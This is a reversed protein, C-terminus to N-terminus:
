APSLEWTTKWLRAGHSWEHHIAEIFFDGAIGLGANGTATVTVRDSVRRNRAQTRLASSKSAWFSLAIIPRDESFGDLVEACWDSAEAERYALNPIPENTRIVNHDAQSAIDDMTVFLGDGGSAKPQDITPKKLPGNYGRVAVVVTELILTDAFVNEWARPDEVDTVDFKYVSEVGVQYAPTGVVTLGELSDYNYGIPPPTDLPGWTVGSSSGIFGQFVIFLAPARNWGPSIPYADTGLTIRGLKIGDDTGYWDRIQYIHCISNGQSTGKYFTVTDGGETGDCILSFVRIGNGERQALQRHVTWPPPAGWEVDTADASGVAFVLVLDGPETSPMTINVTLASPDSDSQNSVDVVTPATAAVGCIARNVLQAAQNLPEISSYGYQGTGPTDTFWASSSVDDRYHRDEFTIPGEPTEKIFGREATEVLRAMDLAKGDAVAFPGLRSTPNQTQPYPPSLQGARALIDGVITGPPVSHNNSNDVEGVRRIVRPAAIEALATSALAGEAELDVTKLEGAAVSTTVAKVKGTWLVGDIPGAMRDFAKFDDLAPPVDSHVQWKGYIGVKTGTTSVRSLHTNTGETFAMRLEQGGAYITVITGVVGVGVTMDDWHEINFGGVNTLVGAVVEDVVLAEQDQSYYMLVYNSSDVYRVVLGVEGDQVILPISAQVYHDSTGVDVVELIAVNLHSTGRANLAQATGAKSIGFGGNTAVTWTNGLDDTGLAPGVTRNFRDAALLVPDGVDVAGALGFVLVRSIAAAGGTVVLNTASVTKFGVGGGERYQIEHGADDGLASPTDSIETFFQGALTAVSTWDDQKWGFIVFTANDTSAVAGPVAMNQASGNLQTASVDIVSGLRKHTGRFAAIQALTTANAVGGTFTVTPATTAEFTVGAYRYSGDSYYRGFVSVNGSTVLPAWGYPTDVTGTGSNRISAFLLLLDGNQLGTPLAPTLSANSGASNAGIGVYTPVAQAGLTQTTDRVRFARGNKLSFPDTNLPSDTNFFSFRDDTNNLTLKLKGPGARGTLSSPFDRGTSCSAALVYSTIDEVGQDWDGDNDFDWEFALDTTVQGSATGATYSVPATGSAVASGKPSVYSTTAM